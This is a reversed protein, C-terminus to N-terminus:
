REAAAPSLMPRARRRLHNDFGFDLTVNLAPGALGRLHGNGSAALFGSGLPAIGCGNDLALSRVVNGTLADIALITGGEPSSVSVVLGDAAMAMSGIYNRMSTLTGEPLEVLRIEGDRTAYGVLQPRDAAPGRYQCGFWVRARADIALHRISLQHLAQELRLQGILGGSTRDIFVLSPDMTDINLEARGYDPHTEIGGNAIVFTEGDPMLLMEHPGIGHTDFEGIRRYDATADYIGIVGKAADFDNETAYLLKGDPSFAGHGFFHRGEPAALTLPAAHGRPDFVVAFSGPQRAFVVGQGTVPSWTVDHGRDPLAMTSIVGGRENLLVAGYSGTGLQIASAYVTEAEALAKARQPALSALLGAGAAKLFARRQWM